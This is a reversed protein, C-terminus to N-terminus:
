PRVGQADTIYCEYGYAGSTKRAPWVLGNASCWGNKPEPDGKPPCLMWAKKRPDGKCGSTTSFMSTIQSTFTLPKGHAYWRNGKYPFPEIPRPADEPRQARGLQKPKCGGLILLLAFGLCAARVWFPTVSVMAASESIRSPRNLVSWLSFIKKM